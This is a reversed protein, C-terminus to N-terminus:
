KGFKDAKPEPARGEIYDQFEDALAFVAQYDETGHLIMSACTIAVTRTQRAELSQSAIVQKRGSSM